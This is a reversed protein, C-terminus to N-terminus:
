PSAQLTYDISTIDRTHYMAVQLVAGQRFYVSRWLRGPSVDGASPAATAAEVPKWESQALLPELAARADGVTDRTGYLM